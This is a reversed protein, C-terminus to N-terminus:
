FTSVKWDLFIDEALKWWIEVERVFHWPMQSFIGWDEVSGHIGPLGRVRGRLPPHFYPIPVIFYFSICYHYLIQFWWHRSHHTWEFTQHKDFKEWFVKQRLIVVVVFRSFSCTFSQCWVWKLGIGGWLGLFFCPTWTIFLQLLLGFYREWFNLFSLRVFKM